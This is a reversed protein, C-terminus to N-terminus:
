DKLFPDDFDTSPNNNGGNGNAPRPELELVPDTEPEDGETFLRRLDILPVENLSDLVMDSSTLEYHPIAGSLSVSKMKLERAMSSAQPTSDFLICHDPRRHVYLAAELLHHHEQESTSYASVRTDPPFENELKAFRIFREMEKSSLYSVVGCEVDAQKLNSIWEIASRKVTVYPVPDDDLVLESERAVVLVKGDMKLDHREVNLYTRYVDAIEEAEQESDTWKLVHKAVVEPLHILAPILSEDEPVTKGYKEAVKAWVGALLRGVQGESLPKATPGSRRPQKAKLADEYTQAIDELQKDSLGEDKYLAQAADVASLTGLSSIIDPSPVKLSYMSAVTIWADVQVALLDEHLVPLGPWEDAQEKKLNIYFEAVGNSQAVESFREVMRDLAGEDKAWKLVNQIMERPSLITAKELQRSTPSAKGMSVAAERWTDNIEEWAQTARRFCRYFYATMEETKEPNRSWHLVREIADYPHYVAAAKVTELDPAALEYYKAVSNWAELHLGTLDVLVGELRFIAGYQRLPNRQDPLFLNVDERSKRQHRAAELNVKAISLESLEGEELEEQAQDVAEAQKEWRQRQSEWWARDNKEEPAHEDQFSEAFGFKRDYDVPESPTPNDSLDDYSIRKKASKGEREQSYDGYLQPQYSSPEGSTEPTDLHQSGNDTALRKSWMHGLNDGEEEHPSSLRGGNHPERDQPMRTPRDQPFRRQNDTRLSRRMASNTRTRSRSMVEADIYEKELKPTKEESFMDQEEPPLLGAQKRLEALDQQFRPDNLLQSRFEPDKDLSRELAQDDELTWKPKEKDRIRRSPFDLDDLPKKGERMARENFKNVASEFDAALEEDSMVPVSDPLDEDHEDFDERPINDSIDDEQDGRLEAETPNRPIFRKWIGGFGHSQPPPSEKKNDSAKKPSMNRQAEMLMRKKEKEAFDPDFIAKRNYFSPPREFNQNEEAALEDRRSLDVDDRTMRHGPRDELERYLKERLARIRAEEEARMQLLDEQPAPSPSSQQSQQARRRILFDVIPIGTRFRRPAPENNQNSPKAPSSSPSRFESFKGSERLQDVHKRPSDKKPSSRFTNLLRGFFGPKKEEEEEEEFPPSSTPDYPLDWRPVMHTVVIVRRSNGPARGINKPWQSSPSSYRAMPIVPCFCWVRQSTMWVFLFCVLMSTHWPKQCGQNTM